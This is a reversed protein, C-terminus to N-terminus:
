TPSFGFQDVKHWFQEWRSRTLVLARLSLVMGAGREKWRMGSSCLRQKVLTKCAAETVGSGIPLRKCQYFYYNMQWWHNEFYTITSAMQEKAAAPFPGEALTKMTELIRRAAGSNNKLDHCHEDMWKHRDTESAPYLAKAFADLYQTAHWFDLIQFSVHEALFTWNCQAGDALGVMTAKPYLKKVHAIEHEMRKLFTAKGYEPAAALYITHQREGDEGYLSITGTM